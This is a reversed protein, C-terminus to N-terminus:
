EDAFVNRKKPYKQLIRIPTKLASTTSPAHTSLGFITPM